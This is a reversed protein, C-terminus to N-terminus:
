EGQPQEGAGRYRNYKKLLSVLRDHPLGYVRADDAGVMTESAVLQNVLAEEVAEVTARFLADMLRQDNDNVVLKKEPAGSWSSTNTTSFALAFEGSYNGATSGTRGVGLAARRAVRQLQHAQLPVDTAIIVLLSNKPSPRERDRMEPKLDSIEEGVPVGAIRLDRRAGHNAQLLVGVIYSRDSDAVVRSATGIGGKFGYAIMGTGGGVNGEAVPGLKAGDLAAFVDERSLPHGFADNLPIDLTEGVAPLTHIIFEDDPLYGPRGAWDIMADRVVSINGTGTLGIPGFLQGVEDVLAMGTFEGTGNIVTRGAAVANRGTKGTPFIITVGTRVPGRGRVLPGNGRIVTTQGVEVGPVDTIADLKGPTGDFPVGLDRARTAAQTASTSALAACVLTIAAIRV